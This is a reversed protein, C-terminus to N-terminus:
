RAIFAQGNNLADALPSYRPTEGDHLILPARLVLGARSGRIASVLIRIANDGARPHVPTVHAGGFRGRCATVIEALSRPRAILSLQGGPKCVAGASRIWRALLGDAMTHAEARLRDPTQRDATRNFPPNMLVHDFAADKLGAALRTQGVLTVDVALLSIRGALRANQELAITRRACAAMVASCEVLVVKLGPNRSAAALGAAGSGAGFDALVGHAGDAVLSALLMADLGARHGRGKPQVLHFDGRHFADITCAM